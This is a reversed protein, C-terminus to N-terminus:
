FYKEEKSFFSSLLAYDRMWKYESQIRAAQYLYIHSSVCHRTRENVSRLQLATPSVQYRKLSNLAESNNPLKQAHGHLDSLIGYSAFFISRNSGRTKGFM